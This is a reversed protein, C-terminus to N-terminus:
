HILKGDLYWHGSAMKEQNDDWWDFWTRIHKEQVRWPGDGDFPQNNGTTIVLEDYATRRSWPDNHQMQRILFGADFMSGERHRVGSPFRGDQSEWWTQWRINLKPSDVDEHHGLLVELAGAAVERVQRNKHGTGQILTPVARPDGMLGLGQLAGLARAGEGKTAHSLLLLHDPGGYRGVIEGPHNSLDLRDETLVRGHYDIGRRDGLMLLTLAAHEAMAPDELARLVRPAASRDGIRGLAIIAAKRIVPSTTPSTLTLIPRVAANERRIGLVECAAAVAHPPYERPHETCALLGDVLAANPARALAGQLARYPAGEVSKNLLHKLLAQAAGFSRHASILDLVAVFRMVPPDTPRARGVSVARGCADLERALRTVVSEGSAAIALRHAGLRREPRDADARAWPPKCRQADHRARAHASARELHWSLREDSAGTIADVMAVGASHDAEMFRTQAAALLSDRGSEDPSLLQAMRMLSWAERVPLEITFFGQAAKRYYAMAQDHNDEEVAIAGLRAILRFYLEESKSEVQELAQSYLASAADIHGDLREIDGEALWLAARHRPHDLHFQSARELHVRALALQDQRLARETHLLEATFRNEPNLDISRAENLIDEAWPEQRSVAITALLLLTQGQIEPPGDKRIQRIYMEAEDVFGLAAEIEAIKFICIWPTAGLSYGQCQDVFVRM